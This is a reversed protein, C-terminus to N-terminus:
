ELGKWVSVRLTGSGKIYLKDKRLGPFDQPPNTSYIKLHIDKGNFSVEIDGGDAQLKLGSSVFDWSVSPSDYQPFSATAAKEEYYVDASVSM